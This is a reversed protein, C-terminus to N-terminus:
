KSKTLSMLRAILIAPFLIGLLAELIAFSQATHSVPSIDGYGLTCLTVFSFYLFNYDSKTDVQSLRESIMFADHNLNYILLYIFSFIMGFIIYVAIAGQIRHYNVEDNAFV